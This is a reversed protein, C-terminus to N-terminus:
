FLVRTIHVMITKCMGESSEDRSLYDNESLSDIEQKWFLKTIYSSNPLFLWVNYTNKVIEHRQLQVGSLWIYAQLYAHDM